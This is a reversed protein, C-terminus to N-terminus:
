RIPGIESTIWPASTAHSAWTTTSCILVPCASRRILERPVIGLGISSLHARRHRATVLLQASETEALLAGDAPGRVIRRIVEVDPYRDACGAIAESVVLNADEQYSELEGPMIPVYGYTIALGTPDWAHVVVLPAGRWSAEAYAREVSEHSSVSGSVGVVVSGTPASRQDDRGVLVPSAARAAVLSSVSGSTLRSAASRRGRQVLVMAAHDSEAVLAAAPSEDPVSVTLQVDHGALSQITQGAKTALHEAAVRWSDEEADFPDLIEHQPRTARVLRLPVHRQRCIALARELVVSGDGALEDPLGVVVARDTSM